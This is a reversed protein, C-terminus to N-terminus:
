KGLQLLNIRTIPHLEANDPTARPSLARRRLWPASVSSPCPPSTPARIRLRPVSRAAFRTM